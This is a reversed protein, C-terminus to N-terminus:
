LSAKPETAQAEQELRPSKRSRGGLARYLAYAVFLGGGVGLVWAGPVGMAPGSTCSSQGASGSVYDVCQGTRLGFVLLAVALTVLVAAGLWLARTGRPLEGNSM